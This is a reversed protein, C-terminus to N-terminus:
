EIKKLLPTTFRLLNLKLDRFQTLHKDIRKTLINHQSQYFTDCNIDECEIMGDLDNKHNLIAAQLETKEEKLVSLNSYYEELKEYLNQTKDEFVDSTLLTKFFVIEETHDLFTKDWRRTDAKLEEINKEDASKRYLFTSAM